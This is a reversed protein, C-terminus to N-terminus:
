NNFLNWTTTATQRGLLCVATLLHPMSLTMSLLTQPYHVFTQMSPSNESM